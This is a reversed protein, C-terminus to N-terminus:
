EVGGSTKPRKPVAVDRITLNVPMALDAGYLALRLRIVSGEAPLDGSRTEPAVSWLIVPSEECRWGARANRDLLLDNARGGPKLAGLKGRTPVVQVANRMLECQDYTLLAAGQEDNAELRLLNVSATSQNLVDLEYV